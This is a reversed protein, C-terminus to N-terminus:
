SISFLPMISEFHTFRHEGNPYCHVPYHPSFRNFTTQSDLLEDNMALLVQCNNNKDAAVEYHEFAKLMSQTVRIMNDPEGYIAFQGEPLSRGPSLSPNIIFARVGFKASMWHSWFGGLSTGIVTLNNKDCGKIKSVIQKEAEKPDHPSYAIAEVKYEPFHRRLAAVKASNTNSRFGHLYWFTHM